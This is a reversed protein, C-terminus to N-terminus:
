CLLYLLLGTFPHVVFRRIPKVHNSSLMVVLHEGLLALHQGLCNRPGQIFPVFMYPRVADEFKDYEGGPMFREPRFVSPENYM